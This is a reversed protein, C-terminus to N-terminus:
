YIDSADGLLAAINDENDLETVDVNEDATIELVTATEENINTANALMEAIIDSDGLVSMSRDRDDDDNKTATTPDIYITIPANRNKMDFLKGFNLKNRTGTGGSRVSGLNMIGTFQLGYQFVDHCNQVSLKKGDIKMEAFTPKGNPAITATKVNLFKEKLLGTTKTLSMNLIYKDKITVRKNKGDEQIIKTYPKFSSEYETKFASKLGYLERAERVRDKEAADNKNKVEWSNDSVLMDWKRGVVADHILLAYVFENANLIENSLSKLEGEDDESPIVNTFMLSPQHNIEDENLSKSRQAEIRSEYPRVSGGIQIKMMQLLNYYKGDHYIAKNFSATKGIYPKNGGNKDTEIYISGLGYKRMSNLLQQVTIFEYTIIKTNGSKPNKTMAIEPEKSVAKLEEDSSSKFFHLLEPLTMEHLNSAAM